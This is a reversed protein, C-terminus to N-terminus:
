EEAPEGDLDAIVRSVRYIQKELRLRRYQLGLADEELAEFKLEMRRRREDLEQEVVSVAVGRLDALERSLERTSEMRHSFVVRLLLQDRRDLDAFIRGMLGLEDLAEWRDSIPTRTQKYFDSTVDELHGDLNGTDEEAARKERGNEGTPCVTRLQGITKRFHDTVFNAASISIYALPKPQEVLEVLFGHSCLKELFDVLLRSEVEGPDNAEGPHRTRISRAIGHLIREYVLGLLQSRAGRKDSEGPDLLRTALGVVKEASGDVADAM